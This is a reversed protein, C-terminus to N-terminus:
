DTPLLRADVPDTIGVLQVFGNTRKCEAIVKRRESPRLRARLDRSRALADCDAALPAGSRLRAQLAMQGISGLPDAAAPAALALLLITVVVPVRM